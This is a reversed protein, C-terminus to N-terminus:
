AYHPSVMFIFINPTNVNASCFKRTFSLQTVWSICRSHCNFSIWTTFQDKAMNGSQNTITTTINLCVTWQTFSIKLLDRHVFCIYFLMVLQQGCVCLCAAIYVFWLQSAIMVYYYNVKTTFLLVTPPKRYFKLSNFDM